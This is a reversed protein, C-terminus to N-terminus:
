RNYVPIFPYLFTYVPIYPYLCTYVPIFLYLRTYVPIFPYIRYLGTYVPIYSYLCAYVVIFSYLRTYVTYVVIFSYLRTYIGRIRFRTNPKFSWFCFSLGTNTRLVLWLEVKLGTKINTLMLNVSCVNQLLSHSWWTVDSYHFSINQPDEHWSSWLKEEVESSFPKHSDCYRDFWRQHDVKAVSATVPFSDCLCAIWYDSISSTLTNESVDSYVVTISLLDIGADVGLGRSPPTM